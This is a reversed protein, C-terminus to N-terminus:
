AREKASANPSQTSTIHDRITTRALELYLGRIQTRTLNGERIIQRIALLKAETEDDLRHRKFITPALFVLIGFLMYDWNSVPSLDIGMRDKLVPSIPGALAGVVLGSVVGL